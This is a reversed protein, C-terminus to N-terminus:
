PTNGKITLRPSLSRRMGSAGNPCGILSRQPFACRIPILLLRQSNGQTSGSGDDDDAPHLYHPYHFVGAAPCVLCATLAGGRKFFCELIYYPLARSFSRGTSPCLTVTM